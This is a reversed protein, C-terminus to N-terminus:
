GRIRVIVDDYHREYTIKGCTTEIVHAPIEGNEWNDDYESEFAFGDGYVARIVRGKEDYKYTAELEDNFM